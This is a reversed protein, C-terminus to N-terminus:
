KAFTAAAATWREMILMQVVETESRAEMIEVLGTLADITERSMRFTKRGGGSEYLREVSAKVRSKADPYQAKRPM